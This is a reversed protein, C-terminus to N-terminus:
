EAGVAQRALDLTRRLRALANSLAQPTTGADRAADAPRQGEILVLGAAHLAPGSRMGVLAALADLKAQTM